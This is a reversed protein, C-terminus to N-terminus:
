RTARAHAAELAAVLAEALTAATFTTRKSGNDHWVDCVDTADAHWCTGVEGGLAAQVQDQLCGLTAPDTFDPVDDADLDAIGRLRGTEEVFCTVELVRAPRHGRLLIRCGPVRKFGAALARRGLDENM